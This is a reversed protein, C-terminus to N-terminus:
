DQALRLLRSQQSLNDSRWLYLALLPRAGTQMAHPEHTAHHILTGPPLQRWPATGQQWGATGALPLYIEEAEHHHLPYLTGPGLLLFGCALRTSALPGHEGILESWGYSNLFDAGVEQATYSQRWALLPAASALAAILVAGCLPADALADSLWRLVPLQSPLAMRVKATDPWAALFRDLAPAALSQLLHRIQAVLDKVTEEAAIENV